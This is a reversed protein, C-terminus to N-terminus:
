AIADTVISFERLKLSDRGYPCASTFYYFAAVMTDPPGPAIRVKDTYKRKAACYYSNSLVIYVTGKSLLIYLRHIREKIVVFLFLKCLFCCIYNM